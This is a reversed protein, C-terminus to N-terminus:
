VGNLFPALIVRCVVSAALASSSQAADSCGPLQACIFTSDIHGRCKLWHDMHAWRIESLILVIPQSCLSPPNRRSRWRHLSLCAAKKFKIRFQIKDMYIFMKCCLCIIGKKLVEQYCFLVFCSLAKQLRLRFFFTSGCDNQWWVHQLQQVMLPENGQHSSLTLSYPPLHLAHTIGLSSVIPFYSGILKKLLHLIDTEVLIFGFLM